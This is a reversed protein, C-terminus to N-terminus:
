GGPGQLGVAQSWVGPARQLWSTLERDAEIKPAQVQGQFKVLSSPIPPAESSEKAEAEGGWLVETTQMGLIISLCVFLCGIDVHHLGLFIQSLWSRM